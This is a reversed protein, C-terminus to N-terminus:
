GSGDLQINIELQQNKIIKETPKPSPFSQAGDQGAAAQSPHPHQQPEAKRRARSPLV